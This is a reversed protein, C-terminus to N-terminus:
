KKWQPSSLVLHLCFASYPLVCDLSTAPCLWCPTWPAIGPMTRIKSITPILIWYCLGIFYSPILCMPPPGRPFRSKCPLGLRPTLVQLALCPAPALPLLMLCPMWAACLSFGLEAALKTHPCGPDQSPVCFGWDSQRLCPHSMLLKTNTSPGQTLASNASASSM